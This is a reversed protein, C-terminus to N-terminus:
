IYALLSSYTYYVHKMLWVAVKDLVINMCIHEWRCEYLYLSFTYWPKQMDSKSSNAQSNCCVIVVFSCVFILVVWSQLHFTMKILTKRDWINFCIVEVDVDREKMKIKTRLLKLHQKSKFQKWKVALTKSKLYVFCKM